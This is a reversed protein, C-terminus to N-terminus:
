PRTARELEYLYALAQERNQGCMAEDPRLQICVLPRDPSDFLQCRNDPTLQICRVGSPKGDPM